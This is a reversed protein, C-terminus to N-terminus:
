TSCMTAPLIHPLLPPKAAHPASAYASSRCTTRRYRVGPTRRITPDPSCSNACRASAPLWDRAIARALTHLAPERRSRASCFPLAPVRQVSRRRRLPPLRSRARLLTDPACLRLSFFRRRRVPASAAPPGPTGSCTRDSHPAPGPRCISATRLRFGPSRHKPVALFSPPLAGQVRYRYIPAPEPARAPLHSCFGTPRCSSSARTSAARAPPEPLGARPNQPAASSRATPVAVCALRCRFLGAASEVAVRACRPASRQTTHLHAFKETAHRSYSNQEFHSFYTPFLCLIA